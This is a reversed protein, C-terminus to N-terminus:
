TTRLGQHHLAKIVATVKLKAKLTRVRFHLRKQMPIAQFCCQSTTTGASRVEATSRKGGSSWRGRRMTPYLYALWTLRVYMREEKSVTGVNCSNLKNEMASNNGGDTVRKDKFQRTIIQSKCRHSRNSTKLLKGLKTVM